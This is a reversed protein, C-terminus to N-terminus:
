LILTDMYSQGLLSEKVTAIGLRLWELQVESYRQFLWGNRGNRRCLSYTQNTMPKGNPDETLYMGQIDQLQQCTPNGNAYQVPASNMEWIVHSHTLEAQNGQSDRPNMSTWEWWIQKKGYTKICGWMRKESCGKGELPHPEHWCRRRQFWVCVKTCCRASSYCWNKFHIMESIVTLSKWGGVWISMFGHKSFFRVILWHRKTGATESCFFIGSIPADLLHFQSTSIDIWPQFSLTM